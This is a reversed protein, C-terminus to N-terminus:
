STFSEGNRKDLDQQLKDAVKRQDGAVQKFTGAMGTTGEILNTKSSLYGDDGGPGNAFQNGMKDDGWPAGRGAVASKLNNVADTIRDGVHATKGAASRFEDPHFEFKEDAVICGKGCHSPVGVGPRLRFDKASNM